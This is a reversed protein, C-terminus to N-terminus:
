LKWHYPRCVVLTTVLSIPGGLIFAAARIRDSTLQEDAILPFDHQFNGVYLGYHIFGCFLWIAAGIELCIM